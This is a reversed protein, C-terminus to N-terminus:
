ISAKSLCMFRTRASVSSNRRTLDFFLLDAAGPVDTASVSNSSFRVSPNVMMRPVCTTDSVTSPGGGASGDALNPDPACPAGVAVIDEPGPMALGAPLPSGVPKVPGAGPTPPAPGGPKGGPKAGGPNPPRPPGGPPLDKTDVHDDSFTSLHIEELIGLHEQDRLDELYSDLFLM